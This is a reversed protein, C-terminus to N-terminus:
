SNCNDPTNIVVRIEQEPGRFLYNSPTTIETDFADYYTFTGTNGDLIEDEYQELDVVERNDNLVDCITPTIEKFETTPRFELLLEDTWFGLEDGEFVISIRIYLTETTTITRTTIADTGNIAQAETLHYSVVLLEKYDFVTRSIIVATFDSLTFTETGDNGLDCSPFGGGGGGGGGGGTATLNIEGDNICGSALNTFVVCVKGEASGITYNTPNPIPNKTDCDIYAVQIGNTDTIMDAISQTLNFGDNIQIRQDNTVPVGDQYTFQLEFISYCLDTGEARVYIRSRQNHVYQELDDEDIPNLNSDAWGRFLHYTFTLPITNNALIDGEHQTLDYIPIHDCLTIPINEVVPKTVLRIPVEVVNPCTEEIGLTFRTFISVGSTAILETQPNLNANADAETYHYSLNVDAQSGLLDNTYDTLDLTETRDNDIDCVIIESQEPIGVNALTLTMIGIDFCSVGRQLRAYLTTRNTSLTYTEPSAIGNTNARATTLSTHYTISLGSQTGILQSEFATLDIEEAGFPLYDCIRENIDTAVPYETDITIPINDSVTIDPGNCVDYTVTATYSTTTEPCITIQDETSITTGNEDRWIVTTLSTGNPTFRWAENTTSWESNNRNPPFSAENKAANQIGILANKRNVIGSTVEPDDTPRIVECNIPKDKVYVEIVNSNEYLVIQSTSKINECAFHNMNEYSIIFTRQPATGTTYIKIDGCENIPTAPDDFCGDKTVNLMDHFVGFISNGILNGSPLQSKIYQSESTAVTLDFTIVGNDGLVLQDYGDNYFCFSFPLDQVTSWVDDDGVNVITGNSTGLIPNKYPITAVSYSTTQKIDTYTANLVFCRNTDTPYDCDVFVEKQNTADTIEIFPIATNDQSHLNFCCVMFVIYYSLNNTM